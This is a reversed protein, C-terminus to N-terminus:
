HLVYAYVLPATTRQKHTVPLYALSASQSAPQLHARTWFYSLYIHSFIHSTKITCSDHFSFMNIEIYEQDENRPNFM